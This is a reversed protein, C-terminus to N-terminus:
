QPKVGAARVIPPWRRVSERIEAEFKDPPTVLPEMGMQLFRETVDPQQVIRAIERYLRDVIEPPTGAPALIGNWPSAVAEKYGAEVVTPVDPWARMRREGAVALAKLQGGKLQPDIPGLFTVYVQVEGAVVDKAAQGANVYPVHLMDVGAQRAIITMVLHQVTGVGTTAYAIKGPKKRALEILEPLSSVGLGPNAVIVVPPEGIKIVPAFAAVPDVAQAGMVSPLLTMLSGGLLLTYGDPPSKAVAENGINSSAGARNEIVVPQGLEPELKMSLLRAVIDSQTGPGFPVVLRIPRSPYAPEAALAGLAFVALSTAALFAAARRLAGFDANCKM